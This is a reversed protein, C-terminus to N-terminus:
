VPVGIQKATMKQHTGLTYLVTYQRITPMADPALRTM